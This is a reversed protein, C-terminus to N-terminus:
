RVPQGTSADFTNQAEKKAASKAAQMLAIRPGYIMGIAGVFKIYALTSPSVNISHLAMIDKLAAALTVAEDQSIELLPNKFFRAAMAHWGVLQKAFLDLDLKTPKKGVKEGSGKGEHGAAASGASGDKRPRGRGRKIAAAPNRPSDPTGDGNDDASGDAGFPEVGNGIDDRDIIAAGGPHEVDAIGNEIAM